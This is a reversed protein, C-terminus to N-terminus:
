ASPRRHNGSSPTIRALTKPVGIFESTVGIAASSIPSPNLNPLQGSKEFPSARDHRSV